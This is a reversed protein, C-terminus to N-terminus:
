DLDETVIILDYGKSPWTIVSGNLFTVETEYRWEGQSATQLWSGLPVRMVAPGDGDAVAKFPTGGPLNITVGDDLKVHGVATAGTIDTVGKLGVHITDQV